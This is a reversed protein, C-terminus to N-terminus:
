RTSSLDLAVNKLANLPLGGAVGSAGPAGAGRDARAAILLM